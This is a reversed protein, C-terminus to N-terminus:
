KGVVPGFARDLMLAVTGANGDDIPGPLIAAYGVAHEGVTRAQQQRDGSRVANGHQQRAAIADLNGGQVDAPPAGMGADDVTEGCQHTFTAAIGAVPMRRDARRGKRTTIFHGDLQDLIEFFAGRQGPLCNRRNRAPEVQRRDDAPLEPTSAERAHRFLHLARHAAAVAVAVVGVVAVSAVSFRPGRNHVHLPRHDGNSGLSCSEKAHSAGRAKRVAIMDCLQAVNCRVQLTCGADGTGGDCGIRHAGVRLRFRASAPLSACDATGLKPM